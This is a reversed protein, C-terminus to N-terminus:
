EVMGLLVSTCVVSFGTRSDAVLVWLCSLRDLRVQVDVVVVVVDVVLYVVVVFLEFGLGM